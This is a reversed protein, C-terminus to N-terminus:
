DSSRKKINDVSLLYFLIKNLNLDACWRIVNVVKLSGFLHGANGDVGERGAYRRNGDPIIGLTKPLKGMKGLEGVTKRLKSKHVAPDIENYTLEKNTLVGDVLKDLNM